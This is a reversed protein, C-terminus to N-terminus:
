YELGGSQLDPPFPFLSIAERRSLSDRFCKREKSYRNQLDNLNCTSSICWRFFNDSDSGVTVSWLSTIQLIILNVSYSNSHILLSHVILLTKDENQENKFETFKSESLGNIFHIGIGNQIRVIM